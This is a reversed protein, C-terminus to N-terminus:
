KKPGLDHWIPQKVFAEVAAKTLRGEAAGPGERYSVPRMNLSAAGILMHAPLETGAMSLTSMHRRLAISVRDGRANTSEHQPREAHLCADLNEPVQKPPPMDFHKASALSSWVCAPGVESPVTALGALAKAPKPQRKCDRMQTLQEKMVVEPATNSANSPTSGRGSLSWECSRHLEASYKRKLRAKCGQARDAVLDTETEFKAYLPGDFVWEEERVPLAAIVAEAPVEGGEYPKLEATKRCEWVSIKLMTHRAAAASQGQLVFRMPEVQSPTPAAVAACGWALWNLAIVSRKM